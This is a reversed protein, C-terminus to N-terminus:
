LGREGGRRTPKLGFARKLIVTITIAFYLLLAYAIVAPIQM